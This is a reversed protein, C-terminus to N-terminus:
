AITNFTYNEAALKFIGSGILAPYTATYYAYSTDWDDQWAASGPRIEHM